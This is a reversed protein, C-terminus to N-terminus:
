GVEERKKNNSKENEVEGFKNDFCEFCYEKDQEIPKLGYYRVGFDSMSYVEDVIKKCKQCKLGASRGM